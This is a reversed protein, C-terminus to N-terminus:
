LAETKEDLYLPEQYFRAFADAYTEPKGAANRGIVTSDLECDIIANRIREKREASDTVGEFIKAGHERLRKAIFVEADLNQFQPDTM